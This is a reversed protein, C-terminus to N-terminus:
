TTKHIYYEGRRLPLLPLFLPHGPPSGPRSAKGEHHAQDVDAGDFRGLWGSRASYRVGVPRGETQAGRRMEVRRDDPPEPGAPAQRHQAFWAGIAVPELDLM